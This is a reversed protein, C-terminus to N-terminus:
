ITSEISKLIQKAIEDEKMEELTRDVIEGVSMASSQRRKKRILEDAASARRTPSSIQSDATLSNNSNNNSNNDSRNNDNDNMALGIEEPDIGLEAVLEEVSLAEGQIKSWALLDRLQGAAVQAKKISAKERVIFDVIKTRSKLSLQGLSPHLGLEDLMQHAVFVRNSVANNSQQQHPQPQPQPRQEPSSPPQHHRSSDSKRKNKVSTDSRSQEGGDQDEVCNQDQQQEDKEQSPLSMMLMATTVMGGSSGSFKNAYKEIAAAIQRRHFSEDNVAAGNLRTSQAEAENRFQRIMDRSSAERLRRNQLVWAAREKATDADAKEVVRRAQALSREIHSRLRGLNGRDLEPIRTMKVVHRHKWGYGISAAHQEIPDAAKFVEGDIRSGTRMVRGQLNPQSIWSCSGLVPKPTKKCWAVAHDISKGHCSRPRRVQEAATLNFFGDHENDGNENNNNDDNNDDDDNVRLRPISTAFDQQGQEPQPHQEQHHFSKPTAASTSTSSPHTAASAPTPSCSSPRPLPPLKRARLKSEDDEAGGGGGNHGGNHSGGGVAPKGRELYNTYFLFKGNATAASAPRTSTSSATVARAGFPAAVTMASAAASRTQSSSSSSSGPRRQQQQEHRSTSDVVNRNDVVHVDTTPTFIKSCPTAYLAKRSSSNSAVVGVSSLPRRQQIEKAETDSLLRRHKTRYEEEDDKEDDGKASHAVSPSTALLNRNGMGLAVGLDDLTAKKPPVSKGPHIPGFTASAIEDGWLQGVLPGYSKTAASMAAKSLINEVVPVEAIRICEACLSSNCRSCEMTPMFGAKAQQCRRCTFSHKQASSSIKMASINLRLTHPHSPYCFPCHSNDLAKKTGAADFGAQRAVDKSSFQLSAEPRPTFANTMTTAVPRSPAVCSSSSSWSALMLSSTLETKTNMKAGVLNSVHFNALIECLELLQSRTSVSFAVERQLGDVVVGAVALRSRCYNLHRTNREFFRERLREGTDDKRLVSAGEATHVLEELGDTVTAKKGVALAAQTLLASASAAAAVPLPSNKKDSDQSQNQALESQLQLVKSQQALLEFDRRCELRIPLSSSYGHRRSISEDQYQQQEDLSSSVSLLMSSASSPSYQNRINVNNNINNNINNNQQQQLQQHTTIMAEIVKARRLFLEPNHRPPIAHGSPSFVQRLHQHQHSGPSGFRSLNHNNNYDSNGNTNGNFDEIQQNRRRLGLPVSTNNKRTSSAPNLSLHHQPSEQQQQQQQNTSSSNNHSTNYNNQNDRDKNSRFAAALAETAQDGYFWSMCLETVHEELPMEECSSPSNLINTLADRSFSKKTSRKKKQSRKKNSDEANSSRDQHRFNNTPEENDEGDEADGDEDENGEEEENEDDNEDYDGDDQHHQQKQIKEDNEGHTARKKKKNSMMMAMEDDSWADYFETVLLNLLSATMMESFVLLTEPNRMASGHKAYIQGFHFAANFILGQAYEIARLRDREIELDTLSPARHAPLAARMSGSRNQPVNFSRVLATAPRKTKVFPSPAVDYRQHLPDSTVNHTRGHHRGDQGDRPNKQDSNSNNSNSNNSNCNNNPHPDHGYSTRAGFSREPTTTTTTTSQPMTTSSDRESMASTSSEDASYSSFTAQSTLMQGFAVGSSDNDDNPAELSPEASFAHAIPDNKETKYVDWRFRRLVM